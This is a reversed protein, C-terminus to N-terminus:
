AMLGSACRGPSLGSLPRRRRARWIDLLLVHNACVLNVGLGAAKLSMLMVCVDPRTEFEHLAKERAALSLTGDLRRFPFGDADLLPELLDLM